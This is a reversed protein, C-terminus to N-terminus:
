VAGGGGLYIFFETYRVGSCFRLLYHEKTTDILINPDPSAVSNM